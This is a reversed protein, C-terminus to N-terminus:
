ITVDGPVLAGAEAAARMAAETAAASRAAAAARRRMKRRWRAIRGVRWLERYENIAEMVYPQFCAIYGAWWAFEVMPNGNVVLAPDLWEGEDAKDMLESVPLPTDKLRERFAKWDLRLDGQVDPDPESWGWYLCILAPRVRPGFRRYVASDAYWELFVEFEPYLRCTERVLNNEAAHFLDEEAPEFKNTVIDKKVRVKIVRRRLDFRYQQKPNTLAPSPPINPLLATPDSSPMRFTSSLMAGLRLLTRRDSLSSRGRKKRSTLKTPYSM